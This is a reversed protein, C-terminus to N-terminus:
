WILLSCLAFVARDDGREWGGRWSQKRVAVAFSVPDTAMFGKRTVEEGGWAPSQSRSSKGKEKEKSGNDEDRREDDRRTSRKLSM